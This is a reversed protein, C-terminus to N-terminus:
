AHRQGLRFLEKGLDGSAEFNNGMRNPEWKWSYEVRALHPKIMSVKTVGVLKREALPVVYTM